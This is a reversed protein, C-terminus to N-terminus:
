FEIQAVMPDPRGHREAAMSVVQARLFPLLELRGSTTVPAAYLAVDPRLSLVTALVAPDGGLLRIHPTTVEGSQLRAHWRTDSEILVESVRLPSLPHAFLQVLREPLPQATSIHVRAGARTAAALVRVLQAPSVGDSLRVTTEVPLYRVVTRIGSAGSEERADRYREIWAREDSVAGARVLDFELFKMNPQAAEILTRVTDGIGELRVSQQPESFKPVWEGLAMIREASGRPAGAGRWGGCQLSDLPHGVTAKNVHLSGCDVSDLWAALEDVDLTHIGATEGQLQNQLRIAAQLDPVSTLVLAPADVTRQAAVESEVGDRVGPRWLTLRDDLAEPEVLWSEGDGALSLLRRVREPPPGILPGLRASAELSSAPHRSRVADAIRSRLEKSEGMGGVLIVLRAGEPHQGAHHFAGTVIDRAAADIDASAAVIVSAVGRVEGLPPREPRWSRLLRATDRDGSFMVQEVEPHSLARRAVAPDEPVVLTVLGPEIGSEHAARVVAAASHRAQHAPQVVVASGALLAAAIGDAIDSAPATWSPALLVAAAPAFEANDIAAVADHERVLRRTFAVARVIEQDAEAITMGTERVLTAVLQGRMIELADAFASVAEVREAASARAGWEEGAAVSEAILADLAEVDRMIEFSELADDRARTLVDRAWQRGEPTAPDVLAPADGLSTHPTHEPLAQEMADLSARFRAAEREFLAEDEALAPMASRFSAPDAQERLRELLYWAVGGYAVDDVVPAYATVTAGSALVAEAYPTAGLHMEIELRSAVGRREALERAFALEFLNNSAMVVSLSESRDTRLAWDLMRKVQADTAERSPLAGPQPVGKVLRVRTSAGGQARRERAWAAVGQLLSLSDPLNAPLTIGGEYTSLSPRSLLGTFVDLTYDVESRGGMELTIRKPTAAAAAAEYLPELRDIAREVAEDHAWPHHPGVLDALRVSVSEVEARALLETVSALRRDASTGGLVANGFPAVDVRIGREWLDRIREGLEPADVVFERMSRRFSARVIPVLARPSLLSFGGALQVLVRLGAPLDPPMQRSLRELNRAAAGEDAACIVLEIFQTAFELGEADRVIDATKWASRSLRPRRMGDAPPALWERVTAIVSDTLDAARAPTQSASPM